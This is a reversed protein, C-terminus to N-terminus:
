DPGLPGWWKVASERGWWGRGRFGGTRPKSTGTKNVRCRYARWRVEEESPLSFVQIVHGDEPTCGANGQVVDIKDATDCKFAEPTFTIIIWSEEVRDVRVIDNIARIFWMAYSDGTSKFQLHSSSVQMKVVTPRKENRLTEKAAIVKRFSAEDDNIEEDILLKGMYTVVTQFRLDSQGFDDLETGFTIHGFPQEETERSPLLPM